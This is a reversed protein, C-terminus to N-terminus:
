HDLCPVQLNATAICRNDSKDRKVISLTRRSHMSPKKHHMYPNNM